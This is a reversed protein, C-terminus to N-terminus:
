SRYRLRYADDKVSDEIALQAIYENCRRASVIRRAPPVKAAPKFTAERQLEEGIPFSSLTHDM